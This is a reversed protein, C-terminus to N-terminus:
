AGVLEPERPPAVPTSEERVGHREWWRAMPAPAYWNWKGLLRMTAPVLLARVITADVLVAIALGVGIMSIFSIGSTAFAGVVVVFLLAASTIIRGTSQLGRSVATTNDGTRDWEERIRSLLFVEYDMSLGFAMVFMLVPQTAELFGTSTFGLLGSLHGEQFGWVLIGFTATLSLVNMVLAKLPLVVSGFALFLLVFTVVVLYLLAWPGRDRLSQLLDNLEATRGGVLVSSDTPTPTARVDDVLARATGSTSEGNYDVAVHTVDASQGVIRAGTAGPLQGLTAVYSDISAASTGSPTTVVVDVPNTSLGPLESRMTESAVRAETGVPLVREDVGGFSVKLFPLGFLLLIGVTAVAVVLPRRMVARALRAWAGEDPNSQHRRRGIFPVRLSDVRTGLVGLLAPVVTLAAVMAVLVASMGGFGMSRLFNQPFFLLAALSVAVTLGSFAVARGATSITRAVAHGVADKSGDTLALEERFRSVVLLAYDIALGLGLMTVINVSFVSVDTVYTLLKLVTFAGLIAMGGVALPLSAAALSGFVVALLILLLPMSLSEAKGIDEKVQTNIADFTPAPGGRLLTLGSVNLNGDIAQWSAQRASDDEGVLQLVAAVTQGDDSVLENAASPTSWPTTVASVASSPLDSLADEIGNRVQPSTANLSSDDPIQYLLVADAGQHGFAQDIQEAAQASASGPAAFGGDSLRGFVSTGWVAAIVVVTASVALVLRRRRYMLWGLQEFM